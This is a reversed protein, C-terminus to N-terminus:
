PPNSGVVNFAFELGKGRLGPLYSHLELFLRWAAEVNGFFKVLLAGCQPGSTKKKGGLSPLFPFPPAGSHPISERWHQQKYVPSVPALLAAFPVTWGPVDALSNAKGPDSGATCGRLLLAPPASPAQLSQQPVCGSLLSLVGVAASM